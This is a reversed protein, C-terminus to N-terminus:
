REPSDNGNEVPGAGLERWRLWAGAAVVAAIAATIELAPGGGPTDVLQAHLRSVADIGFAALAVGAIAPAPSGRRAFAQWLHLAGFLALIGLSTHVLGSM